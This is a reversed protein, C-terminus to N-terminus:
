FLIINTFSKNRDVLFASFDPLYKCSIALKDHYNITMEMFLKRGVSHHLVVGQGNIVYEILNKFEFIIKNRKMRELIDDIHLKHIKSIKSLTDHFGWILLQQNDRIDQINDIIPIFKKNFFTNLLMGTFAYSIVVSALLWIVLIISIIKSQIKSYPQCYNRIDINDGQWILSKTLSIFTYFVNFKKNTIFNLLCTIVLISLFLTIWIQFFYKNIIIM